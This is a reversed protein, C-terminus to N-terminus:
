QIEFFPEFNVMNLTTNRFMKWFCMISDMHLKEVEFTEMGLASADEYM